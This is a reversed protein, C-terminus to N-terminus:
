ARNRQRFKTMEEKWYIAFMVEEYLYQENDTDPEENNEDELCQSAMDIVSSWDINEKVLLKKM